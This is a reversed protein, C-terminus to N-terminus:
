GAEFLAFIIKDTIEGRAAAAFIALEAGEKKGYSIENGRHESASRRPGFASAAVCQYLQM